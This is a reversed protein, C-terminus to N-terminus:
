LLYPNVHVHGTVLAVKGELTFKALTPSLKKVLGAELASAKKAVDVVFGTIPKSQDVEIVTHQAKDNNFSYDSVHIETKAIQELKTSRVVTTAFLRLGRATQLTRPAVTHLPRLFM